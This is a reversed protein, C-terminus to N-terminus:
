LWLDAVLCWILMTKPVSTYSWLINLWKIWKKFFNILLDGMPMFRCSSTWFLRDIQWLWSEIVLSWIIMIKPVILYFWSIEIINKKVEKELSFIWIKGFYRSRSLWLMDHNKTCQHLIRIDRCSAKTKLITKTKIARVPTFPLFQDLIVERNTGLWIEVVLYWTLM